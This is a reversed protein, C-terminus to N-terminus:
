PAIRIPGPTWLGTRTATDLHLRAPEADDITDLRRLSGWDRGWDHSLYTPMVHARLLLDTIGLLGGNRGEQWTDPNQLKAPYDPSIRYKPVETVGNVHLMPHQCPFVLGVMWDLLIPQTSGLYQQLTRLQPVRPPTVALWDGVSLSRDEAVIRVYTADTPIQNRPFRLSRWSPQPGIDYPSLRGQAQPTGNPGTRGYELAVTQSDTRGRLVSTGTITGAATVVVLPHADNAAPLQYWASTLTAQQQAGMAFSGAVPVRAPDLGYPLPVSSGNIGPTPLATPADWDYDTGPQPDSKWVAESLIHEPVGNATFGTPGIGGLPGLSGYDGPLPALFGTNVDPEVLVDDALGCGGALGRLNAWGNSYTPYERVVGITMSALFVVVMLAAVWPVPARTLVRSIIPEPSRPPAVHLWGAYLAVIVCLAFLITSIAVPGLRPTDDNFPAGYSSVYWWGNTSAFCVAVVFLVAALVAMRNRASRLVSPGLLVTALAAMAAGVAAFLGFHHVWKTPTFTLFFITGLIMGMLRWAPGRPVGAIRKRRLLLLMSPFLCVATIMFAFRRSLSGDTTPLILYFYRLNETYWPQSPGIATRVKTAELVSAITQDAFVITLVVVGAAMLPAVLPWTGVIRHRKVIVRILPRGGAILAAVAILGTPQIGLTFAATVVALAAPTVRSTIIAREILVYTALAGFAIQGEPRLGNNFAMWAALLVLAAAWVAARNGIVAPGLRPLVERSLLLWCLLACILDPLRIWLSADSVKTMLALVNYYWGFPDEPSGFWRFYNSMYGAHGAVRAMQMQYGDDSSGAGIVYWIASVAIVTADIVTFTRWRTPVLRQMRRGDVRDLRWLALLAVVTALIGILMAALKVASPTSSFRTDIVASMSLGPPAPGTLDTFIGVIQPRLNPDTFGSRRPSGDSSRLGQFDAFTGEQSSTVVLRECEPGRAETRTASGIVVNRAIVEVRAQTVRVFLGNLTAQKGDAPATGFILGGSAPMAGIVTCPVTATLSVPTLTILPSVVNVLRDNQPWELDATTQVVPLVPTLASLVFGVLGAVTAVWRAVRVDRGM